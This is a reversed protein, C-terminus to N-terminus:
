VNDRGEKFRKHWEFVSPKKVAERGNAESLIERIYNGSWEDGDLTLTL